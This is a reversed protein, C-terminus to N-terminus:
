SSPASLEAAFLVLSIWLMDAIGLHILQSWVPARLGITLAGACIAAVVSGMVWVSRKRLELTQRAKFVPWAMSVLLFSVSIALVPHIVRLKVLFDAAPSLDAQMGEALTRSPFLTDGLATIAGAVAVLMVFGLTFKLKTSVAYRAYRSPANRVASRAAMTLAGLLALTNSLHLGLYILRGTSRDQAVFGFLVLGAGLLAELVIFGLSWAAWRRVAHGVPAIKRAWVFLVAVGVFALGSMIRHTFEIVTAMAALEPVVDGNCFPWHGGCGAGSGTARVLAGWLIVAVNYIVAAWAFKRFNAPFNALAQAPATAATAALKM